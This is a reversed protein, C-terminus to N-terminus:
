NVVHTLFENVSRLETEPFSSFVHDVAGHCLCLITVSSNVRVGCDARFQAREAGNGADDRERAYVRVIIIVSMNVSHFEYECELGCEYECECKSDDEWACECLYEFKRDGKLNWDWDSMTVSVLSIPRGSAIVVSVRACSCECEVAMNCM